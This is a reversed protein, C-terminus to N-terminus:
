SSFDLVIKTKVFLTSAKSFLDIHPSHTINLFYFKSKFQLQQLHYFNVKFNKEYKM